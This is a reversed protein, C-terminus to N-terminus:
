HIEYNNIYYGKIINITKKINTNSLNGPTIVNENQMKTNNM